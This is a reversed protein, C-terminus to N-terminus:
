ASFAKFVLISGLRYSDCLRKTYLEEPRKTHVWLKKAEVTNDIIKEPTSRTPTSSTSSQEERRNAM